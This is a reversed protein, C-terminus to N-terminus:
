GGSEVVRVGSPAVFTFVGRPLSGNVVVKTMLVRRTVGSPEVTELQRVVGDHDDVWVTAKTFVSSDRQPVLSVVHTAHGDIVATGADGVVYRDPSADLIEGLPDLPTGAGRKRVPTKIVQGPVSSPLYVWVASGDDVIRDTLPKAFVIAFLDPRKRFLEGRATNTTGTLANTLTQEFRASITEASKYTAVARAFTAKAEQASAAGVHVVTAVACALLCFLPHRM